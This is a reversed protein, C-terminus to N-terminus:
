KSQDPVPCVVEDESIEKTTRDECVRILLCSPASQRPRVLTEPISCVPQPPHRYKSSPGCQRSKDSPCPRVIRLRERREFPPCRPSQFTACDRLTTPLSILGM